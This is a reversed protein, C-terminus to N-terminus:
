TRSAGWALSRGPTRGRVGASVLLLCSMHVFHCRTDAHMHGIRSLALTAHSHRVHAFHVWACACDRICNVVPDFLRVENKAAYAVLPSSAALSWDCASSSYWNASPPLGYSMGPTKRKDAVPLLDQHEKPDRIDFAELGVTQRRRVLAIVAFTWQSL